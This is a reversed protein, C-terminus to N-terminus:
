RTPSPEATLCKLEISARTTLMQPRGKKTDRRSRTTRNVQAACVLSVHEIRYQLPETPRSQGALKQWGLIVRLSGGQM